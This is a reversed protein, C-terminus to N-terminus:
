GNRARGSVLRRAAIRHAIMAQIQDVNTDAYIRNTPDAQVFSGNLVPQSGFVRAMHWYNLTSRFEGSVFSPIHRYDDHRPVYGFVGTPDTSKSWVERKSVEQEGLMELERQWYDQYTSRLFHRPVQDQYVTKPRVSLLGIIYGHEEFFRKYARTRLAAIGHGALDGVVAGGSDATSLVESFSITQKGGGLYEPRQLRADSSQVGLFALMDRYRSGYRNRHERIKQMAMARRWDNINMSASGSLATLDAFIQPKNTSSNPNGTTQAKIGLTNNVPLNDWVPNSLNTGDPQMFTTGSNGAAQGTAVGLGKIPAQGLDLDLAVVETDTGQQPNARATTFYDKEWSVNRIAYNAPNDSNGVEETLPTTLDQDRYFENYIKNYGRLPLSNYNRDTTFTGTGLAQLLAVCSADDTENAAVVPVTLSTNSGTIFDEFNSWVIRNPVFWFHLAVHVPHMVPAVLPTMRILVSAQHRFSDGPLTELCCVPYLQGQDLTSLRYHSLSHKSRKM